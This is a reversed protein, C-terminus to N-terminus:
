PTPSSHKTSFAVAGKAQEVQGRASDIEEQAPRDCSNTLVSWAGWKAVQVDYRAKADDYAPEGFCRSSWGSQAQPFTPM